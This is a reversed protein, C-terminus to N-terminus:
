EGSAEAKKTWDVENIAAYIQTAITLIRAAAPGSPARLPGAKGIQAAVVAGAAQICAARLIMTQDDM